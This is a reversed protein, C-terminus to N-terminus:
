DVRTYGKHSKARGAAVDNMCAYTLSNDKCFQTLNFGEIKEGNPATFRFNKSKAKKNWEDTFHTKIRGKSSCDAMNDKQSGLFLHEPNVCAPTDCKHCVYMGKPIPGVYFEYSVRHAKKVKGVRSKRGCGFQTCGYGCRDKWGQWIWCEGVKITHKKIRTEIDVTKM